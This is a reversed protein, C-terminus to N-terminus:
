KVEKRVFFTNTVLEGRKFCRVVARLVRLLDYGPLWVDDYKPGLRYVPVM